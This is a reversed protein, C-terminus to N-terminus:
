VSDVIIEPYWSEKNLMVIKDSPVYSDSMKEAEIERSAKLAAKSYYPIKVGNKQLTVISYKLLSTTKKSKVYKIRNFITRIYLTVLQEPITAHRAVLEKVGTNRWFYKVLNTISETTMRISPEVIIIQAATADVFSTSGYLM